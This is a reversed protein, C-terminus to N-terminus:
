VGKLENLVDQMTLFYGDKMCWDSYAAHIDTRNKSKVVQTLTSLANNAAIESANVIAEIRQIIKENAM